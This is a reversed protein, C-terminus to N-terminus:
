RFYDAINSDKVNKMFAELTDLSTDLVGCNSFEVVCTTEFDKVIVGFLRKDIEHQVKKMAKEMRREKFGSYHPNTEAGSEM